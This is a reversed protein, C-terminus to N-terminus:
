FYFIENVKINGNGMQVGNNTAITSIIPKGLEIEKKINKVVFETPTDDMIEIIEQNFEDDRKKSVVSEKKVNNEPFEFIQPVFQQFSRALHKTDEIIKKELKLKVTQDSNQVGNIAKKLFCDNGNMPQNQDSESCMGSENAYKEDLDSSDTKIEEQSDKHTKLMPQSATHMEEPCLLSAHAFIPDKLRNYAPVDINLYKMVLKM